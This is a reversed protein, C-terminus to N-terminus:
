RSRRLEYIRHPYWPASGGAAGEGAPPPSEHAELLSVDWDGDLRPFYADGAVVAEVLTLYATRAKPLFASYVAEGGIVFIEQEPRKSRTIADMAESVSAYVEVGDGLPRPSRTLVVNRRNKLPKGISEYTKRGMVVVHGETKRRFFAMDTPLRWPIRGQRGIVGNLSHAVIITVCGAAAGATRESALRATREASREAAQGTM